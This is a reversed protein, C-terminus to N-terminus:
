IFQSFHRLQAKAVSNPTFQYRLSVLNSRFTYLNSLSSSQKLFDFCYSDDYVFGIRNSIVFEAAATCWAPVVPIVCLAIYDSLKASMVTSSLELYHLEDPKPKRYPLLGFLCQEALPVVEVESEFSSILSISLLNAVSFSHIDAHCSDPALIIHSSNPISSQIGTSVKSFEELPYWSKSLSGITLFTITDFICSADYKQSVIPMSSCIRSIHITAMPKNCQLALRESVTTVSHCRALVYEELRQVRLKESPQINYLLSAEMAANGRLDYNIIAGVNSPMAKCILYSALLGRCSILDPSLRLLILRLICLMFPNDWLALFAMKGIYQAHSSFPLPLILLSFGFSRCVQITGILYQIYRIGKALFDTNFLPLLSIVKLSDAEIALEKALMIVQSRYLGSLGVREGATVLLIRM